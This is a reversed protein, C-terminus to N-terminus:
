ILINYILMSSLYAIVGFIVVQLIPWKWTGTERKVIALTSMCQMSFAYFLMLSIGTALNFVKKGNETKENKLRDFLKGENNEADEIAYITGLSGVFVERAAFSTIISIGIKWDYGLPAIIPEITKGLHGIYSNELQHSGGESTSGLSRPKKMKTPLFTNEGPGFSALAWLIISICLIIKGADFIFIKVKEFVTIFVNKAIPARYEPLELLFFGKNKARVIRKMFFSVSLVAIIGLFYLAFLVIAQLSLFGFYYHNPIVLSILLAYVPLRASCSMLPAVFITILREKWDDILRASMVGPIACAVSSILPVVSKGNLGFPRMIRDMIFVSRALYGSEELLSLLLFLLSIQPIFIVIGAIGPIIGNSILDVLLSDSFSNQFWFSFQSFSTDILDMPFASLYFVSQFILLLLFAFIVYGWLPHVLIKDISSRTNKKPKHSLTIVKNVVSEAWKHREAAEKQKAVTEKSLSIENSYVIKDNTKFDFNNIADIIRNKGFGVRAISSVVKVGPLEKELASHDITLGNNTAMDSMNLVIIMPINLDYIQSTFLLGKALHSADLVMLVLDPFNPNNKDMMVDYVVQEDISKPYVSTTGPFDILQHTQGQTKLNGFRKDVTIGPFNGVHQRLGTLMNFVSSKGTNPNGLLAIKM